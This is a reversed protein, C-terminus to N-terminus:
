QNRRKGALGALGEEVALFVLISAPLAPLFRADILVLGAMAGLLAGFLEIAALNEGSVELVLGELEKLDLLDIKRRVMGQVDVGSAARRVFGAAASRFGPSGIKERALAALHLVQADMQAMIWNWFTDSTLLERAKGLALDMGEARVWELARERYVELSRSFRERVGPSDMWAEIGPASGDLFSMVSEFFDPSGVKKRIERRIMEEDVRFVVKGIRLFFRGPQKKSGIFDDLADNVFAAIMTDNTDAVAILAGALSERTRPDDLERHVAARVAPWVKGPSTREALFGAVSEQLKHVAADSYKEVTRELVGQLYDGVAARAEPRAALRQVGDVVFRAAKEPLGREEMYALVSDTDLLRQAVAAGVAEAMEARKAPILGQRGFFTRRYPRFLMRIAFHNTWIGVTGSLAVKFIWDFWPAPSFFRGLAGAATLAPFVVIALRRLTRVSM